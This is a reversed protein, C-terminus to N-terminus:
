GWREPFDCLWRYSCHTCLNKRKAMFAEAIPVSDLGFRGERISRVVQETHFLTDHRYVEDLTVPRKRKLDLAAKGEPTLTMIDLGPDRHRAYLIAAGIINKDPYERQAMLVYLPLQLNDYTELDKKTYAKSGTKYDVILVMDTDHLAYLADIRGTLAFHTDFVSFVLPDKKGLSVEEAMAHLPMNAESFAHLTEPLIGPMKDTGLLSPVKAALLWSKISAIGYRAHHKALALQVARAQQEPGEQQGDRRYM